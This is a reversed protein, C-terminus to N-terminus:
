GLTLDAAVEKIRGSWNLKGGGKQEAMALYEPYDKGRELCHEFAWADMAVQDVGAMVLDGLRVNKPDGGTPGNEFLIQTGDIVTLTPKFIAALEALYGHVQTRHREPSVAVMGKWNGIAISAGYLVHDKVPAINILKDVGDLPRAFVPWEKVVEADPTYLTKFSQVDPMRVIGGAEEVAERIGTKRFCGAPSEIPNDAVRVEAAGGDELLIRVLHAVMVPNSTAGLYFSRDYQVNPKVLVVDGKQVYHQIGGVADIAAKLMAYQQDASYRGFTGERVTDGRAIGIDQVMRDPKKVGFDKLRFSEPEEYSREGSMDRRSFPADEPAFAVYSGGAIVAGAIAANRIFTRRNMPSKEYEPHQVPKEKPSM